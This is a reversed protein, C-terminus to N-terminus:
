RGRRGWGERPRREGWAGIRGIGGSEGGGGGGQRRPKGGRRLLGRQGGAGAGGRSRPTGRHNRPQDEQARLPLDAPRLRNRPDRRRRRRHRRVRRQRRRATARRGAEEWEARWPLPRGDRAAEAPPRSSAAIVIEPSPSHGLGGKDRRRPGAGVSFHRVTRRSLNPAPVRFIPPSHSPLPHRLRAGSIPSLQWLLTKKLLTARRAPGTGNAHRFLVHVIATQIAVRGRLFNSHCEFGGGGGPNIRPYLRPLCSLM